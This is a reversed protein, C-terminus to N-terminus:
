AKKKKAATKKGATKKALTKKSSSKKSATKKAKSSDPKGPVSSVKKKLPNWEFFHNRTLWIDNDYGNILLIQFLLIGGFRFGAAAGRLYLRYKRLFAEDYNERITDAHEELRESWHDLTLAYHYRLNELDVVHLRRNVMELGKAFEQLSPVYGGPFIHKELWPDTPHPALNGITHVMALGNPKLAEHIIDFFKTYNDKGVHEFMGVAVFKDYKINRSPINRYDDFVFEVQDETLGHSAALDRAYALQEKSITYSSVKVGYNLAAHVAFHGWGSGSEVLHEGPQLRLKRCILDMKAVQAQELTFEPKEFYACTYQLTDDLWLKYFDNGLDYHASINKRSGSLTNRRSLFGFLIKLQEVISPKMNAEEDLHFSLRVVDQVDGIIDIEEAMYAEGFGLAGRVLAESLASETKFHVTVEPNDGNSFDSGDPFIFRFQMELSIQNLHDILIKSTQSM